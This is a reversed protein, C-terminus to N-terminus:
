DKKRAGKGGGFNVEKFDASTVADVTQTVDVNCTGEQPEIVVTMLKTGGKDKDEVQMEPLKALREMERKLAALDPIEKPGVSWHIRHNVLKVPANMTKGKYYPDDMTKEGHKLRSIGTGFNDCYIVVPLQEQPEEPTTQSGKDKPLYAPLKAELVKFDICLFFIILLFVVDIMPTMNTKEEEQIIELANM